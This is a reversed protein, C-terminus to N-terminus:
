ERPLVERFVRLANGGMIRAIESENFGQALLAETLWALGGADVPATIAGDFDSGIGVHEVGVRDAAYRVSRAVDEIRDGGTATRFMTIGIVGGVGAIGKLQDDSLNRPNNAIGTVGTHSVVVPIKVMEIVEDIVRRSAHALDIIMHMEQLRRVLERGFSSLGQNNQGHASGGAENDSFHTIGIMRFSADYLKKLNSLDGKLAHVGELALLSGITGPQNERVALCAELDEVSQILRMKGNSRHVTDHLKRSQFIARQFLDKRTQRPWNDIASLLTVADINLPSEKKDTGLLFKTVVGFVQVAVNGDVLRPQDVHGYDSRLLLDRNWLLSDAHLDVITLQDHIKRISDSVPYPPRVTLKNIFREMM